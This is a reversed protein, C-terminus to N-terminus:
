SKETSELVLRFGEYLLDRMSMGSKAAFAKFDRHFQDPVKFNLMKTPPGSPRQILGSQLQDDEVTGSGM